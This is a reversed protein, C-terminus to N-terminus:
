KYKPKTFVIGLVVVIILLALIGIMTGCNGIMQANM